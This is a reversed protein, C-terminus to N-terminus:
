TQRVAVLERQEPDTGVVAERDHLPASLEGLREHEVGMGARVLEAQSPLPGDGAVEGDRDRREGPDDGSRERRAAEPLAGEAVLLRPLEEVVLEGQARLRAVARVAPRRQPHAQVPGPVTIADLRVDLGRQLKATQSERARLREVDIVALHQFREPLVELGVRPEAAELQNRT